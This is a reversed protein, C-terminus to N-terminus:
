EADQTKLQKRSLVLTQGEKIALKAQLLYNDIISHKTQNAVFETVSQISSGVMEDLMDKTDVTSISVPSTLALSTAFILSEM